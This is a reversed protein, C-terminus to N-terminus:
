RRPVIRAPWQRVGAALPAPDAFKVCRVYRSTGIRPVAWGLSHHEGVHVTFCANRLRAVQQRQFVTLPSLLVM